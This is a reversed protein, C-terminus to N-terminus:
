GSDYKGRSQWEGLMNEPSAVTHLKRVISHKDKEDMLDQIVYVYFMLSQRIM